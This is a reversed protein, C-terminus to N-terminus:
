KVEEGYVIYISSNDIMDALETDDIDEYDNKYIGKLNETVEKEDKAWVFLDYPEEHWESVSQIHYLTKGNQEIKM